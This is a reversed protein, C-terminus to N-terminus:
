ILLRQGRDRLFSQAGSFCRQSHVPVDARGQQREQSATGSQEGAGLVVCLQDVGRQLGDVPQGFAARQGLGLSVGDLLAQQRDALLDQSSKCRM